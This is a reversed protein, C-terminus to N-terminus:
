KLKREWLISVKKLAKQYERYFTADDKISIELETTLMDFLKILPVVAWDPFDFVSIFRKDIYLDYGSQQQDRFLILSSPYKILKIVNEGRGIIERFEERILFYTAQGVEIYGLFYEGESKKLHKEWGKKIMNFTNLEMKISM